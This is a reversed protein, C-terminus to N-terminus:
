RIFVDRAFAFVRIGLSIPDGFPSIIIIIIIIVKNDLEYFPFVNQV